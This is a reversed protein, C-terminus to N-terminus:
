RYFVPKGNIVEGVIIIHIPCHMRNKNTSILGNCVNYCRENWTAEKAWNCEVLSMVEYVRDDTVFEEMYCILSGKKVQSQPLMDDGLEM